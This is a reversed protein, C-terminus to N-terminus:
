WGPAVLWWAALEDNARAAEGTDRFGFVWVSAEGPWLELRDQTVEVWGGFELTRWNGTLVHAPPESTFDVVAYQDSHDFAAMLGQIAVEDPVLYLADLDLTGGASGLDNGAHVEVTFFPTTITSSASVAGEPWADPPVSLTGLEVVSYTSVAGFFVEDSLDGAVGGFNARFRIGAHGVNSNNDKGALYVRYRGQYPEVDAPNSAVTVTSRVGSAVEAPDHRAVGGASATADAEDTTAAGLTGDELEFLAATQARGPRAAIIVKDFDTDASLVARGLCRQTGPVNFFRYLANTNADDAPAVYWCLEPDPRGWEFLGACQAGSLPEPWVQANLLVQEGTPSFLTFTEAPNSITAATPMWPIGPWVEHATVDGFTCTTAEGDLVGDVYIAMGTGGAAVPDFKFVVEVEQGATFSYVSSSADNAAGTGDQMYFRGDSTDWWAKINTGWQFFVVDNAAALWHFRLTLGTTYDWGIRRGTLGAGTATIGGDSRAAISASGALALEPAARRWTEDVELSLTANVVYRGRAQESADGELVAGGTIAKRLWTAGLEATQSLGDCVKTYIYGPQGVREQAWATAQNVVRRLRAMARQLEGLGTAQVVVQLEQQTGAGSWSGAVADFPAENLDITLDGWRLQVQRNM